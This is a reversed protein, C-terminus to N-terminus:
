VRERCSARGIKFKHDVGATKLDSRSKYRGTAYAERLINHGSRRLRKNKVVM